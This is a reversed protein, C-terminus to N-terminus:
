LNVRMSLVKPLLKVEFLSLSWLDSCFDIFLQFIPVSVDLYLHVLFAIAENGVSEKEACLAIDWIM